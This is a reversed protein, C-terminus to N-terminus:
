AGKRAAIVCFPDLTGALGPEEGERVSLVSLGRAELLDTLEAVSWYAYFRGLGDREEGAGTKMGLHLRGGPRLARAVRDLLGPLDARPAHLLSFAAWLGDYAAEAELDDFRAVRAAGGKARAKEVMAESADWAEVELGLASLRAAATGPGCGLDLVRGGEPLAEAFAVMDGDPPGALADYAEARADYVALTEPDSM